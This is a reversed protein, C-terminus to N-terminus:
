AIELLKKSIRAQVEIYYATEAANLEEDEWAEMKQMMDAYQGAYKAYDALISLDTPNQQYKQMIAVYEDFFKEYSDMAAKFKDRIKGTDDGPDAPTTSPETPATELKGTMKDVDKQFDAIEDKAGEIDDNYLESRLDSWFRYVDSRGDSWHEYVDSRTNSWMKYEKSRPNSWDSYSVGDPRDDLAGSYFADNMEDLIGDYIGDHIEDGIDDYILDYIGEADSYMEDASAGSALIAEAYDISYQCMQICLTAAEVNIKDYFAKVESQKEMYAEFSDIGECFREWEETLATLATEVATEVSSELEEYSTTASPPTVTTEVDTHDGDEEDTGNDSDNEKGAAELIADVDTNGKYFEKSCALYNKYIESWAGSHAQYMANWANSYENYMGNWADSYVQYELEESADSILNDCTDYVNGYAEDLTDYYDGMADDVLDYFDEMVDNWAQYDSLEQKAVYKFYDVSGTQIDAYVKQSRTAASEFFATVEAKHECYTSYSTGLKDILAEAAASTESGATELTSEIFTLISEPNGADYDVQGTKEPDDGSTHNGCAALSFLMALCLLLALFQKM